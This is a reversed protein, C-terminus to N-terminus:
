GSYARALRAQILLSKLATQLANQKIFNQDVWRAGRTTGPVTVRSEWSDGGTIVPQTFRYEHIPKGLKEVKQREVCVGYRTLYDQEQYSIRADLRELVASLNGKGGGEGGPGQSPRLVDAVDLVFGRFFRLQLGEGRGSTAPTNARNHFAARRFGEVERVGAAWLLRAQDDTLNLRLVADLRALVESDYCPPQPQPKVWLEGVYDDLSNLRRVEDLLAFLEKDYVPPKAEQADWFEIQLQKLHDWLLIQIRHLNQLAAIDDETFKIGM